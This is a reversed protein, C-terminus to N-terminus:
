LTLIRANILLGARSVRIVIVRLLVWLGISSGPRLVMVRMGAWYRWGGGAMSVYYGTLVNFFRINILSGARSLRLVLVRLMM